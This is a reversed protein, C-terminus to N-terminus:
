QFFIVSIVADNASPNKLYLFNQTWPSDGDIINADGTQRTIIRGTPMQGQMLQNPISVQTMKPISLNKVIFAQFNETFNLRSFANTVERAWTWFDIELYKEIL